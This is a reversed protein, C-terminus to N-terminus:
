GKEIQLMRSLFFYIEAGMSSYNSIQLVRINSQLLSFINKNSNIIQSQIKVEQGINSKCGDGFQPERANWTFKKPRKRITKFKQGIRNSCILM